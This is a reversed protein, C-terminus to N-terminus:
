KMVSTKIDVILHIRDDVGQNVVEHEIANNFWWVTGPIMLVSEDGCRFLCDKNTQLPIHFREYYSAHSGGDVHPDISCGAPLKSIICRGLREGEVRAMLSFILIRAQPLESFAPYNISEHEDVIGSYEESKQYPSLDNFRLWIDSVQTHPSQKHRTRLTNKDWLHPQRQIAFLLPMIDVGNAIQLFNKM